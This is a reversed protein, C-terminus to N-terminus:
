MTKYGYITLAMLFYSLIFIYLLIIGYNKELTKYGLLLLYIFMYFLESLLYGMIQGLSKIINKTTM